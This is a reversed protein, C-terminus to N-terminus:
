VLLYDVVAGAPGYYACVFDFVCPCLTHARGNLRDSRNWNNMTEFIYCM